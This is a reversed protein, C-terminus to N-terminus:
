VRGYGSLRIPHEDDDKTGLSVNKVHRLVYKLYHKSCLMFILAFVCLTMRLREKRRQTLNM